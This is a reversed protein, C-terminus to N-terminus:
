LREKGEVDWHIYFETGRWKGELMARLTTEASVWEDIRTLGHAKWDHFFQNVEVPDIENKLMQKNKLRVWRISLRAKAVRGYRIPDSQVANEAKDFFEDYINLMEETLYPKDCQDNFGIHINDKEVKDMMAKVYGLIYPAADGYYFEAFEQMHKQVDCEANWLLKGIIYARMENLDTGGGLAGCAQEFVGKANNDIFAKMNPQLVNWNAHPAPYHAFGTTYDWIYLRDCVKAWDSLDELFSTKTGDPRATKRSDDDCTAFPHSFCSEISSLRVCVNRRPRLKKPAQRSYQYALTDFVVEPFEDELREAIQNVFWILSGACTGEEADIAACSPCTCYNYWDNPSISIIRCLPKALLAGRVKEIAIELVDSNTLCLQSFDRLRKGDVMSFYEPHTDFYDDPHIIESAFTHVFWAYPIGGGFDEDIDGAIIGGGHVSGMNVRSKVSFRPNQIFDRYNHARYELVPKQTIDLEPLTLDLIVPIKECTPTFFRCGLQALLEYVGYIIGRKGGVIGISTDITKITFGDIGHKVVDYELGFRASAAGIAIVPKSVDTSVIEFPACTMLNLYNRLESAAYVEQATPNETTLIVVQAKNKKALM